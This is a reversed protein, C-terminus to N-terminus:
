GPRASLDVNNSRDIALWPVVAGAVLLIWLYSYFLVFSESLNEVLAVVIVALWWRGPGSPEDAIWVLAGVLASVCLGVFLVAAPIGGGLLSEFMSSHASGFQVGGLKAYLPWALDSRWFAGFGYGVLPRESTSAIVERWIDTRGSLTGERGALSSLPGILAVVAALFVVGGAIAFRRTAQTGHRRSSWAIVQSAGISLIAGALAVASTSSRTGVLVWLNVLALLGLPVWVARQRVSSAVATVAVLGLSCVPGLSNRNAFIGIFYDGRGASDIISRGIHPYAVVTFASAAVVV